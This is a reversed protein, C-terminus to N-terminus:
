PASTNAAEQVLEPTLFGVTVDVTGDPRLEVGDPYAMGGRDRVVQAIRYWLDSPQLGELIAVTQEATRRWRSETVWLVGMVSTRSRRIGWLGTAGADVLAQVRVRWHEPLQDLPPETHRTMITLTSRPVHICACLVEQDSPIKHAVEQLDDLYVVAQKSGDTDVMRRGEPPARKLFGPVTEDPWLRQVQTAWREPEGQASYAVRPTRDAGFCIVPNLKYDAILRESLSLDVLRALRGPLGEPYCQM